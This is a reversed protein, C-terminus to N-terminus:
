HDKKNSYYVASKNKMEKMRKTRENEYTDTNLERLLGESCESCIRGANIMNGCTECGYGLKPFQSVLLRKDKIFKTILNESVGTEEVVTIMTAERNKRQRLFDSVIKYANEEEDYCDKCINRITKLFLEDCRACNALEGM